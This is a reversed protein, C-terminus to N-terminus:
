LAFRKIEEKKEENLAVKIFENFDNITLEELNINKIIELVNENLEEKDNIFTIYRKM